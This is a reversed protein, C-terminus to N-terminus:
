SKAEVENLVVRPWPQRFVRWCMLGTKVVYDLVIMGFIWEVPADLLMLIFAGGFRIVFNSLLVTFMPWRTDGTGQCAGTLVFDIAMVPQAVAFFYIFVSTYYTVDSEGILWLSLPECFIGLLLGMITMVTLSFGLAVHLIRKAMALDNKGVAQGIMVNASVSFGYGVVFSVSILMIGAGYAAYPATGYRAVVWLFSLVAVQRFLQEMIAPYSIRWLRRGGSLSWRAIFFERWRPYLLGLMLILGLLNGIGAAKAVAASGSDTYYQWNGALLYTLALTTGNLFIGSALPLWAISLARLASAIIFYIAIFWCYLSLERIYSAGEHLAEPDTLGLSYMIPEALWWFCVSLGITIAVGLVLTVRLWHSAEGHEGRGQSQAILAMAGINLGFLISQILFFLRQGSTVAAIASSGLTAVVKITLIGVVATMAQVGGASGALSMMQRFDVKVAHVARAHQNDM